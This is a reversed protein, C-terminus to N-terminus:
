QEVNASDIPLDTFKNSCLLLLYDNIQIARKATQLYALIADSM